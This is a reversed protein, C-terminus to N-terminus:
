SASGEMALLSQEQRILAAVAEKLTCVEFRVRDGPALQGALAIDASIVTAVIPYGGTTQRDAMLLMPQRSAPVQVVGLPTAESILGADGQHSLPPGELRFGMRDSENRVVYASAQLADLAGDVFRDVHPGPLVRLRTEVGRTPLQPLCGAALRRPSGRDSGLPLRDGPMLARGDVGGLRAALHTSRSGLVAPVAVGGSIAVYARAGSECAGIALHSGAAVTFATHRARAHGDLRLGVAAGAVAVLREDDFELEPGALTVELTACPAANGVLLNALRHSFLDMPGGVPVGRAQLGWRGTDQITTQLGARIIHVAAV